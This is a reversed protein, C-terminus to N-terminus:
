VRGCTMAVTVRAGGQVLHSVLAATKYASIGGTIGILVERDIM